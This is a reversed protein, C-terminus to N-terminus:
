VQILRGSSVKSVWFHMRLSQPVVHYKCVVELVEPPNREKKKGMHNNAVKSAPAVIEHASCHWREGHSDHVVEPSHFHVQDHGWFLPLTNEMAIIIIECWRGCQAAENMSQAPQEGNKM